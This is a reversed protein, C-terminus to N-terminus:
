LLGQGNEWYIPNQETRSAKKNNNPNVPKLPVPFQSVTMNNTGQSIQYEPEVEETINQLDQISFFVKDM